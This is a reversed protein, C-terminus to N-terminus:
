ADRIRPDLLKYSLDVLVNVVIVMVAVLLLVASVVPYDREFTADVLLSGLGPLNFIKEVIVTEGILLSLQLGAFTVVPILANKLGHRVIVRKESMGKAWATRIYDQRLVDLMTTRLMRVLTGSMGMGLILGPVIVQNLNALPDETFPIYRIPPRYFDWAAPSVVILTGIWFAPVAILLIGFSRAAYDGITDQRIASYIAIPLAIALASFLGIISLQLTVPWRAELELAVPTETWLSNGWNGQLLGEREGSREPTVGVWRLYQTTLPADLGLDSRIEAKGEETTVQLQSAMVDVISGPVMRITMFVIVTVLLLTPISLVIRRILYAM